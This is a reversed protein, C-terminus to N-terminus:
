ESTPFFQLNFQYVKDPCADEETLALLRKRLSEVEALAREYGPGSYSLTMTSVHRHAKDMEELARMGLEMNAKIYNATYLSKFAPDKRLTAEQPRLRLGAGKTVFGLRLLLQVAEKAQTATISPRLRKGLAKYDGTFDHFFLLERVASYYWKSYYEFKERGVLDTQWEKFALLKKFGHNKEAISGAQNYSVLAEFYEAEQGVLGFLAAVELLHAGALKMRGKLIDAFWGSSSAAVQRAIYRQSFKPTVSRIAEYKDRLFVRYDTYSYISVIPKGMVAMGM